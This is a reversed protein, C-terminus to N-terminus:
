RAGRGARMQRPWAHGTTEVAAARPLELVAAAPHDTVAPFRWRHYASWYSV